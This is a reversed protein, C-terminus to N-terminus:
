HLSKSDCEKKFQAEKLDLIRRSIAKDAESKAMANGIGFDGLFGAVSRWDTQATTRIQLRVQEAKITEIELERCSYVEAEVSTLPTAITYRKTACGTVSIVVIVLLSSIAQKRSIM